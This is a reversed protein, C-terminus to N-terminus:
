PLPPLQDIAWRGKQGKLGNMEAQNQALGPPTMPRSKLQVKNPGFRNRAANILKLPTFIEFGQEDGDTWNCSGSQIRIKQQLGRTDKDLGIALHLGATKFFRTEEGVSIVYEEGKKSKITFQNNGRDVSIVAGVIARPALTNLTNVAEPPTQESKALAPITTGLVVGLALVSLGAIKWAKM